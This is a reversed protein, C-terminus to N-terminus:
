NYTTPHGLLQSKTKGVKSERNIGMYYHKAIQKKHLHYFSATKKDMEKLGQNMRQANRMM